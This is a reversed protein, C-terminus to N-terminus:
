GQVTNERTEKEHKFTGGGDDPSEPNSNPNTHLHSVLPAFSCHRDPFSPLSCHPLLLSRLTDGPSIEHQSPEATLGSNLCCTSSTHVQALCSSQQLCIRHTFPSLQSGRPVIGAAPSHATKLSSRPPVVCCVCNVGPM